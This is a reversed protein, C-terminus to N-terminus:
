MYICINWKRNTRTGGFGPFVVIHLTALHESKGGVATFGVIRLTVLNESKGFTVLNESKECRNSCRV